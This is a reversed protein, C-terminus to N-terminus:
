RMGSSSQIRPRARPPPTALGVRELLAGRHRDFHEAIWDEAPRGESAWAYHRENVGVFHAGCRGMHPLHPPFPSCITVEHVRVVYPAEARSVAAVQLGQEDLESTLPEDPRTALVTQLAAGLDFKPPLGRIGSNRPEPGCQDAFRGFCARVDEAIVCRRGDALWRSIGDPMQWLICGNDLSLEFHEPYLRLPAFKWAVGEAMEGDVRSRLFEPIQARDVGLWRVGPPVAGTRRAAEDAAITNVCVVYHPKSGFMRWAGWLSLRLAEYGRPSIDGVTWRLALRDEGHVDRGITV